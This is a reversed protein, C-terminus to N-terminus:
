CRSHTIMYLHFIHTYHLTTYHLTTYHLTTGTNFEITEKCNVERVEILMKLVSSRSIMAAM